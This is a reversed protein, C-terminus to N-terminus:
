VRTMPRGGVAPSLLTDCYGFFRLPVRKAEAARGERGEARREKRREGGKKEM